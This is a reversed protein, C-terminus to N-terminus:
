RGKTFFSFFLPRRHQKFTPPSFNEGQSFQISSELKGQGFQVFRAHGRDQSCKAGPFFINTGRVPKAKACIKLSYRLPGELPNGPLLRASPSCGGSLSLLKKLKGVKYGKWTTYLTQLSVSFYALLKIQKPRAGCFHM